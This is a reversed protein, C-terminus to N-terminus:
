CRGDFRPLEVSHRGVRARCLGSAGRQDRAHAFEQQDEVRHQAVLLGPTWWKFKLVTASRTLLAFSTSPDRVAERWRLRYRNQPNDDQLHTRNKLSNGVGSVLM